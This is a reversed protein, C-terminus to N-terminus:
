AHLPGESVSLAEVEASYPCLEVAGRTHKKLEKFLTNALAGTVLLPRGLCNMESQNAIQSLIQTTLSQILEENSCGSILKANRIMAKLSESFKTLGQAAMWPQTMQTSSALVDIVTPKHARGMIMPGPEYGTENEFIVIDGRDNIQIEQTPQTKLAFTYPRNEALYGWPSQWTSETKLPDIWQWKELGLFLICSNSDKYFDALSKQLGFLSGSLMKWDSAKILGQGTFFEIQDKDVLGEVGLELSEKMEQFTGYLSATLLNKRWTLMEDSGSSESSFVIFGEKTFFECAQQWHIPNKNIFIFNICIRQINLLKLKTSIELLNGMDLPKLVEGESGIREDVGFILDQSALPEGRSPFIDFYPTNTPQRLLPWNEFGKTVIQAVSGGLRTDLIKELRRSAVLVKEPKYNANEALFNKLTNTLPESPLYCRRFALSRRPRASEVLAFEAFSSGLSVSLQIAM